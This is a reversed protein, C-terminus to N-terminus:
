NLLLSSLIISIRRLLSQCSHARLFSEMRIHFLLTSWSLMKKNIKPMNLNDILHVWKRCKAPTLLKEKFHTLNSRSLLFSSTSVHRSISYLVVTSFEDPTLLRVSCHHHPVDLFNNAAPAAQLPPNRLNEERNQWLREM